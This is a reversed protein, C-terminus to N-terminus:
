MDAVASTTTVKIAGTRNNLDAFKTVEFSSDTQSMAGHKTTSMSSSMDIHAGYKEEPPTRANLMAFFTNVYLKTTNIHIPVWYLRTTSTFFVILMVVQALTVLIGRNIVLHMLSRLLSSTRVIGTNASTLFVCMAVTAVVDAAAGFAKDNWRPYYFFPDQEYFHQAPVDVYYGCLRGRQRTFHYWIFHHSLEHNTGSHSPKECSEVSLRLVNAFHIHYGCIYPM